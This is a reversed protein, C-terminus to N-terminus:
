IWEKYLSILKSRENQWNYIESAMTCSSICNEYFDVDEFKKIASVLDVLKYQKILFGCPYQSNITRYEPFDMSISPLSTHMYDFYKNALSYYYSQSEADLLNLGIWGNQLLESLKEPSVFGKFNVREIVGLEKAKIKMEQDLDGGGIILLDKKPFHTLSEIALEIGRGKNIVGLYVMTSRSRMGNYSDNEKLEINRIVHYPVQHKETFLESLCDGVTYNYEVKKCITDSILKWFSKVFKKNQLEPVETFYEHADFILPVRKLKSALYAPLLTDLDVASIADSKTTLLRFLIKLNLIAYFLFGSQALPKVEIHSAYSLRLSSDELRSIWSLRYGEEFLATLIRQMRRDYDAISSSCFVIHKVEKNM